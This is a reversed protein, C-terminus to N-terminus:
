YEDSSLLGTDSRQDTLQMNVNMVNEIWAWPMVVQLSPYDRTALNDSARRNDDTVMERSEVRESDIGVVAHVRLSAWRGGQNAKVRKNPKNPCKVDTGREM